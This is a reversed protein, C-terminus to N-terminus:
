RRYTPCAEPKSMPLAHGQGVIESFVVCVGVTRRAPQWPASSSRVLAKTGARVVFNARRRRHPNNRNNFLPRSGKTRDRHDLGRWGVRLNAEFGRRLVLRRHRGRHRREGDTQRGGHGAGAAEGAQPMGSVLPSESEDLAMPFNAKAGTVPWKAVVARSRRDVVTVNGAEPVNIFIRPGHKELQFSEPHDDLM